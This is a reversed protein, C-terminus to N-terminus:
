KPKAYIVRGEYIYNGNIQQRALDSGSQYKLLEEVLHTKADLFSVRAIDRLESPELNKKLLDALKDFEVRREDQTKSDQTAVIVSWRDVVDDMKFLAFVVVDAAQAAYKEYVKELKEVMAMM